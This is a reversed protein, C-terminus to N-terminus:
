AIVARGGDVGIIQGTIWSSNNSLLFNALNAADSGEGIRKLPHLKAISEEIKSNKIVNKAMKSKTLSPAVCNVRINPAFEAALAVTLGEVGSKASSIISHNVFGKKAAVTSFLVVSGNNKKLNEQFSRIIETVSVLNLVYSSVFDSSKTLKFPKIDISGVCYAIGLVEINSLENLLNKSFDIKLVDCVSFTYNLKSALDKLEKANRGILHCDQKKDYLQRALSSGIAGTAGFILYKKSM